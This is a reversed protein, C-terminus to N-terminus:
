NIECIPYAASGTESYQIGFQAECSEIEFCFLEENNRSHAIFWQRANSLKRTEIFFKLDRSSRGHEAKQVCEKWSKNAKSSFGVADEATRMETLQASTPWAYSFPILSLAAVLPPLKDKFFSGFLLQGKLPERIL